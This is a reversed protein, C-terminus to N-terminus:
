AGDFRFYRSNPFEYKIKEVISVGDEELQLQLPGSIRRFPRKPHKILAPHIWDDNLFEDLCKRNMDRAQTKVRDELSLLKM